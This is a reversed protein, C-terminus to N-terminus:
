EINQIQERIKEIESKLEITIQTIQIDNSKSAITNAERNMEQVLFDLKRGALGGAELISDLQIMHSELRTIEEDICGRDAFITVETMLRQEDIEIGALLEDLRSKLKEKYDQVVFPSREKIQVILSKIKDSKKFIDNKLATGEITRMAIFKEIAEELAPLLTTWITDEDEQMKEVTIVDPFKAVLELSDNTILTYKEEMFRLKEIYAEALSENIKVCIDDSSFTEFNIYIDTKGRFIKQMLTKRIKDELYNMSRPLKIAIDNYRHNVSKIEVTFKRSEATHEGRGYGTMSRIM